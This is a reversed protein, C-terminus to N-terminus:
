IHILSLNHHEQQATRVLQQTEQLQKELATVDTQYKKKLDALEQKLAENESKIRKLGFM